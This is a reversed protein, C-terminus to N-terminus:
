SCFVTLITDYRCWLQLELDDIDYVDQYDDDDPMYIQDHTVNTPHFTKLFDSYHAGVVRVGNLVCLDRCAISVIIGKETYISFANEFEYTDWGTSDDSEYFALKLNSYDNISANLRFPGIGIHPYIEFSQELEKM